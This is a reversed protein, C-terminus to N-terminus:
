ERLLEPKHYACLVCLVCRMYPFSTLLHDNQATLINDELLSLFTLQQLIYSCIAQEERTMGAQIFQAHKQEKALITITTIGLWLLTFVINLFSISSSFFKCQKCASFFHRCINQPIAYNIAQTIEKKKKGHAKGVLESQFYKTHTWM